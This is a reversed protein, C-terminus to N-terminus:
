PWTNCQLTKKLDVFILLRWKNKKKTSLVISQEDYRMEAEGDAKQRPVWEGNLLELQNKYQIPLRSPRCKFSLMLSLETIAKRLSPTPQEGKPATNM